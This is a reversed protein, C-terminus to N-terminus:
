KELRLVVSRGLSKSVTSKLEVVLEPRNSLIRGSPEM